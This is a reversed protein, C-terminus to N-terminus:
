GRGLQRGAKTARIEKAITGVIDHVQWAVLHELWGDFHAVAERAKADAWDGDTWTSVMGCKYPEDAGWTELDDPPETM